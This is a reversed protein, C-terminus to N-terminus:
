EDKGGVRGKAASGALHAAMGLVVAAGVTAGVADASARIGPLNIDTYRQYIPSSGDPFNMDTCAYCPGNALICSNVGGNWLRKYSDCAAFPGKCGLELLCYPESFVRAFKSNDFYQRRQCNDHLIKGYFMTPRNFKDMPPLTKYLLVHALSGVMWDPHPPCGPVNIVPTSIGKQKFFDLVSVCGTPNPRAAPIGGFTACTGVALVANAKAGLEALRDMFTIDTGDANVGVTCFKGNAGTSVAGEVVLFYGGAAETDDIVKTALYGAAGSINPHFKLSIVDTLIKAIAPEDSNLLSVSCGTCSAGQIWLVPPNGSAPAAELLHPLLMESLSVAAASGACLKLFDRRSLGKV